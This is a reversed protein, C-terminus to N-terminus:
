FVCSDFVFNKHNEMFSITIHYLYLYIKLFIKIIQILYYIMYDIFYFVMDIDTM